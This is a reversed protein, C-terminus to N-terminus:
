KAIMNEYRQYLAENRRLLDMVPGLCRIFDAVSLSVCKVPTQAIVTASRPAANLLALEGFYDGKKLRGIEIESAADVDVEGQLLNGESEPHQRVVAEGSEMIYFRDGLDGQKIIVDGAAFQIPQLADAIRTVEGRKLTSLIPVSRIFDEYMLRKQHAHDIIVSRFTQRDVGWLISDELAIVTASRTTNYLLALEGFSGTPGIQVVEKGDVRVSFKGQDVVYFNDGEDGQVIVATGKQVRKEFMADVIETRQAPDLNRFLLNRSISQEIRAKQEESKPNVVPPRRAEGKGPPQYSEASVSGRRMRVYESGRLSAAPVSTVIAGGIRDEPIEFKSAEEATKMDEATVHEAAARFIDRIPLEEIAFNRSLRKSVEDFGTALADYPRSPLKELIAALSETYIHSLHHKRAYEESDM